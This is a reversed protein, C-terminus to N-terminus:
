SRQAQREVEIDARRAKQIGKDIVELLDSEGTVRLGPLYDELLSVLSVGDDVLMRLAMRARNTAVDELPINRLAAQQAVLSILFTNLAARLELVRNGPLVVGRVRVNGSSYDAPVPDDTRTSQRQRYAASDAIGRRARVVKACDPHYRRNGHAAGLGLGCEACAREFDAPITTAASARARRSLKGKKDVPIRAM